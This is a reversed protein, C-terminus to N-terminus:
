VSAALEPAERCPIGLIRCASLSVLRALFPGGVIRLSRIAKRRSWLAREGVSGVSPAFTDLRRLDVIVDVPSSDLHHFLARMLNAMDVARVDDYLKVIILGPGAAQITWPTVPRLESDGQRFDDVVSVLTNVDFPKAIFAHYGAMMAPKLHETASFAIAPTLGGESPTLARISAILEFGDGDRMCLDSIVVDPRKSIFAGFGERGSAAITARAGHFELIGAVSERLDQEDDVLLIHINGLSEVRKSSRRDM